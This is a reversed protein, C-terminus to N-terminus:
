AEEKPEGCFHDCLEALFTAIVVLLANRQKDCDFRYKNGCKEILESRKM